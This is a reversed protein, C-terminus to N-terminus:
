RLFSFIAKLGINFLEFLLIWIESFKDRALLKDKFWGDSSILEFNDPCLFGIFNFEGNKDSLLLKVFPSDKVLLELTGLVEFSIETDAGKTLPEFAEKKDLLITLFIFLLAFKENSLLSVKARSPESLLLKPEKEDFIDVFFLVNFENDEFLLLKAWSNILFEFLVEIDIFLM